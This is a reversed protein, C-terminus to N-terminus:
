QAPIFQFNAGGLFSAHPRSPYADAFIFRGEIAAFAPDMRSPDFAPAPGSIFASGIVYVQGALLRVPTIPVYRYEGVLPAATGGPVSVAALLTGDGQWLRVPGVTGLGDLGQDWQGLAVVTVDARPSFAFGCTFGQCAVSGLVPQLDFAPVPPPPPPPPPPLPCGGNSAPGPESVCKDDADIVGDGDTDPPPPPPPPPPVPAPPPRLLNGRGPLDGNENQIRVVSALLGTSTFEGIAKVRQGIALDAFSAAHSGHAFTTGAHTEVLTGAVMLSGSPSAPFWEIRGEIQQPKGRFASGIAAATRWGSNSTSSDTTLSPASPATPSPSSCATVALAVLGPLAFRITRHM